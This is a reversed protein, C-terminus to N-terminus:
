RDERQRVMKEYRESVQRQVGEDVLEVEKAQDEQGTEKLLRAYESPKIVVLNRDKWKNNSVFVANGKSVEKTYKGKNLQFEVSTVVHMINILVPGIDM